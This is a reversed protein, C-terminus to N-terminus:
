RMYAEKVEKPLPANSRASAKGLEMALQLADNDSDTVITSSKHEEAQEQDADISSLLESKLKDSENQEEAARFSVDSIWSHQMKEIDEVAIDFESRAILLSTNDWHRGNTYTSGDDRVLLQEVGSMVEVAEHHLNDASIAYPNNEIDYAVPDIMLRRIKQLDSEYEEINRFCVRYPSGVDSLVKSLAAIGIANGANTKLLAEIQTKSPKLGFQAITHLQDRFGTDLPESVHNQLQDSLQNTYRELESAFIRQAKRIKEQATAVLLSRQSNLVSEEDKFKAAYKRAKEMESRYQKLADSFSTKFTGAANVILKFIAVNLKNM